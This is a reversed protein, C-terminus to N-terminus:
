SNNLFAELELILMDIMVKQSDRSDAHTSKVNTYVHHIRKSLCKCPFCSYVALLNYTSELTALVAPTNHPNNRLFDIAYRLSANQMRHCIQECEMTEATKEKIFCM